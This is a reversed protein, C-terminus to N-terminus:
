LYSIGGAMVKQLVMKKNERRKEDFCRCRKAVDAEVNTRRRAIEVFLKIEM